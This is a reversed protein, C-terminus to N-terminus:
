NKRLMKELILVRNELDRMRTEILKKGEVPFCYPCLADSIGMFKKWCSLCIKEELIDDLELFKERNNM